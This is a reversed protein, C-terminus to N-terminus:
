RAATFRRPDSPLERGDRTRATVTWQGSAPVAGNIVAGNIEAGDLVAVTDTVVMRAIVQADRDTVLLEYQTATPVPHWVFRHGAAIAADAAPSILTVDSATGGRLPDDIPSVPRRVVLTATMLVAAAAVAPIVWSRRRPRLPLVDHSSEAATTSSHESPRAAVVERLLYFEDRMVPHALVQDLLAVRDADDGSSEALALLAEPSLLAASEDAHRTAILRAYAARLRSDNTDVYTM